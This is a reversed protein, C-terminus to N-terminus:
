QRKRTGDVANAESCAVLCVRAMTHPEHNNEKTTLNPDPGPHARLTGRLRSAVVVLTNGQPSWLDEGDASIMLQYGGM